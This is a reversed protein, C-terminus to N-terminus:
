DWLNFYYEGILKTGKVMREYMTEYLEKKEEDAVVNSSDLECLGDDRDKWTFDGSLYERIDGYPELILEKILRKELKTTESWDEYSNFLCAFEIEGLLYYWTQPDLDVPHSVSHKKLYHVRPLIWKSLYFNLNWVEANAVHDKNFLKQFYFEIKYKLERLRYNM